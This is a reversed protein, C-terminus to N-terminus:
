MAIMHYNYLPQSAGRGRLCRTTLMSKPLGSLRQNRRAHELNSSHLACVLLRVESNYRIGKLELTKGTADLYFTSFSLGIILRHMQGDLASKAYGEFERTYSPWAKIHDSSCNHAATGSLTDLAEYSEFTHVRVIAFPEGPVNEISSESHCMGLTIAFFHLPHRARFALTVPPMGSWEGELAPTSRFLSIHHLDKLAHLASGSIRFPSRPNHTTRSLQPPIASVVTSSRVEPQAALYVDRWQPVHIDSPPTPDKSNAPVFNILVYRRARPLGCHYVLRNNMQAPRPCPTLILGLPRHHPSLIIAIVCTPLAVIPIHARIGHPTMTLSM